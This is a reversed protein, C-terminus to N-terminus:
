RMTVVIHTGNKVWKVQENGGSTDYSNVSFNSMYGECQAKGENSYVIKKCMNYNLSIFGLAGNVYDRPIYIGQGNENEAIGISSYCITPACFGGIPNQNKTEAKNLIWPNGTNNIVYMAIGNAFAIKAGMMLLVLVIKKM